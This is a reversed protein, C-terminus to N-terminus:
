DEKSDAQSFLYKSILQELVLASQTFEVEDGDTDNNGNCVDGVGFGDWDAQDPNAM